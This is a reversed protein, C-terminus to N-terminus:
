RPRWRENSRGTAMLTSAVARRRRVAPLLELPLALGDPPEGAMGADDGHVVGGGAVVAAAAQDHLQQGASRQGLQQRAGLPEVDARTRRM